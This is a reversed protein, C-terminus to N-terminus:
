DGKQFPPPIVMNTHPPPTPQSLLPLSPLDSRQRRNFFKESPTLSDNTTPTNRWAMLRNQFDAFNDSKQLLFKVSKVASEALGNSRSNYPSSTSHIINHTSCYEKFETRFQPGNDSIIIFPYGFDLFWNDLAKTIASTITTHLLQVWIYYSYRDVMVLYSKGANSFLDLAVSHMPAQAKPHDQSNDQLSPRIQQCLECNQILQQIAVTMGPWYYLNKALQKTKTIGSHSTHLRQLISPRCVKPVILRSDNLVLLIDDMVSLNDWLSRFIQAPHDPPLISPTKGQMFALVVSKYADDSVTADYFEQLAPDSALKDVVASQACLTETVEPPDFVPARSLADAILHSKGPVYKVQFSFHALKERYRLLRANELDPLPKVFTGVLPKHDTLLDFQIGQLYFQCEKIAYYIALCELETTSYRTEASNLSRSGCQILSISTPTRQLLTYGLGRLRLADTLLESQLDANYPKVILDSLLLNKTQEFALQHEPLWTYAM